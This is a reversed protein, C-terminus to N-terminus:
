ENIISMKQLFLQYSHSIEHFREGKGYQNIRAYHIRKLLNHFAIGFNSMKIRNM